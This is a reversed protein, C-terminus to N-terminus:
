DWGDWIPHRGYKRVYHPRLTLKPHLDSIRQVHSASFAPRLFIALFEGDAKLLRIISTYNKLLNFNTYGFFENSYFMPATGVSGCVWVKYTWTVLASTTYCRCAMVATMVLLATWQCLVGDVCAQLSWSFPFFPFSLTCHLSGRSLKPCIRYRKLLLKWCYM